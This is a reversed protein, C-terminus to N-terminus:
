HRLTAAFKRNNVPEKRRTRRRSGPEALSKPIVARNDIEAVAPDSDRNVHQRHSRMEERVSIRPIDAVFRKGHIKRIKRGGARCGPGKEERDTKGIFIVCPNFGKGLPQHLQRFFGAARQKSAIRDTRRLIGHCSFMRGGDKRDGRHPIEGRSEAEGSGARLRPIVDPHGTRKAVGIGGQLVAPAMPSRRRLSDPQHAAPHVAGLGPVREAPRKQRKRCRRDIDRVSEGLVKGM